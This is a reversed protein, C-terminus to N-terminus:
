LVVWDEEPARSRRSKLVFPSANVRGGRLSSFLSLNDRVKTIAVNWEPSDPRTTPLIEDASMIRLKIFVHELPM